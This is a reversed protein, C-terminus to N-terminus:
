LWCNKAEILRGTTIEGLVALDETPLYNCASSDYLISASAAFEEASWLIYTLPIGKLGTIEVSADGYSLESGGLLKGAQPLLERKEEFFDAIPNIARKNFAGEYAYGGPLDKFKVLNGTLPALNSQAYHSLLTALLQIHLETFRAMAQPNLNDKLNSTELDLQFGLFEYNDDEKPNVLQRIKQLTQESLNLKIIIIGFL